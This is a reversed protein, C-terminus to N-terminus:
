PSPKDVYVKTPSLVFTTCPLLSLVYLRINRDLNGSGDLARRLFARTQRLIIPHYEPIAHRQFFQHFQKRYNRWRQTYGMLVFNWSMPIRALLIDLGVCRANGTTFVYLENMILTPRDSYIESRQDLLDSAVTVSNIVIVHTGLIKMYILDGIGPHM